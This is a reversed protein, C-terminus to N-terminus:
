WYRATRYYQRIHETEHYGVAKAPEPAAEPVPLAQAPAAGAVAALSALAGAGGAARLFGRRALNAQRSKQKDM